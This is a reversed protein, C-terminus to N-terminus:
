GVGKDWHIKGEEDIFIIANTAGLKDLLISDSILSRKTGKKVIIPPPSDLLEKTEKTTKNTISKVAVFVKAYSEGVDIIGLAFNPYDLIYDLKTNQPNQMKNNGTDELYIKRLLQTQRSM